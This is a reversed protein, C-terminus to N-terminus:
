GMFYRESADRNGKKEKWYFLGKMLDRLLTKETQTQLKSSMFSKMRYYYVSPCGTIILEPKSGVLFQLLLTDLIM